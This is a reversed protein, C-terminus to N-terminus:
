VPEPERGSDALLTDYDGSDIADQMEAKAEETLRERAEDATRAVGTIHAAAIWVGLYWATEALNVSRDGMGGARLQSAFHRRHAEALVRMQELTLNDLTMM